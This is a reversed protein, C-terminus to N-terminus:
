EIRNQKRLFPTIFRPDKELFFLSYDWIQNYKTPISFIFIMIVCIYKYLHIQTHIGIFMHAYTYIKNLCFCNIIGIIGAECKIKNQLKKIYINM